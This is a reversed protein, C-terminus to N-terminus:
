INGDKNGKTQSKELAKAQIVDIFGKLSKGQIRSQMKYTCIVIKEKDEETLHKLTFLVGEVNDCEAFFVFETERKKNQVKLYVFYKYQPTHMYSKM